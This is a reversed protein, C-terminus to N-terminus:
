ISTSQRVFISKGVNKCKPVYATPTETPTVTPVKTPPLTPPHVPANTPSKTAEVTPKYTPTKTADPTPTPVPPLTAPLIVKNIAHIIGNKAQIDKTIIQPYRLPENGTGVIFLGGDKKCIITTALDNAMVLDKDCILDKAPIKGATAHYLLVFEIEEVTMGSLISEAIEEFAKNTPAFVTLSQDPDDLLSELGAQFVFECLTEFGETNCAIDAITQHAVTPV